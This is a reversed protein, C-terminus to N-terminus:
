DTSEAAMGSKLGDSMCSLRKFLVVVVVLLLLTDTEVGVVESTTINGDM